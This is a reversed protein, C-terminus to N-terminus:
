GVGAVFGVLPLTLAATRMCNRRALVQLINSIVAWACHFGTTFLRARLFKNLM